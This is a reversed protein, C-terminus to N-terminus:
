GTLANWTAISGAPAVGVVPSALAVSYAYRTFSPWLWGPSMPSFGEAPCSSRSAAGGAFASAEVPSLGAKAM